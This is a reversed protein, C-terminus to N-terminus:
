LFAYVANSSKTLNKRKRWPIMWKEYETVLSVKRSKNQIINKNHGVSNQHKITRNAKNERRKNTIRNMGNYTRISKHPIYQDVNIGWAKAQM